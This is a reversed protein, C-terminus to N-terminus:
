FPAGSWMYWFSLKCIQNNMSYLYIGVENVEVVENAYTVENTSDVMLSKLPFRGGDFMVSYYDEKEEYTYPIKLRNPNESTYEKMKTNLWGVYDKKDVNHISQGYSNTISFQGYDALLSEVSDINLNSVADVFKKIMGDM